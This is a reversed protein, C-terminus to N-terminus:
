RACRQGAAGAHRRRADRHAWARPQRQGPRQQGGRVRAARRKVARARRNTAAKVLAGDGSAAAASVWRVSGDAGLRAIGGSLGAPNAGTVAFGFFVNGAADSTLPTNIFVTADYTAPAAAYAADGYFVLTRVAGSAADPSAREIVRGGSAPVLVREDPTIVPNLSPVWSHPLLRVDTDLSWLLAGNAGIRAEVRFAGAANLKVPFVVTNRRTIVPSGYHALLSGSSSYPPDLDVPASWWLTTLTQSAIQAVAGHQADRGFGFWPPGDVPVVPPPPPPPPPVDPSGGGGGCAALSFLSLLASRRNPEHAQEQDM